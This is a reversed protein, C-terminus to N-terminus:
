TESGPRTICNRPCINMAERLKDEPYAQLENVEIFDGAENFRFVEPCVEICGMCLTCCAMDVEPSFNEPEIFSM